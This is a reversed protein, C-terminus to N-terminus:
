GAGLKIAQVMELVPTPYVGPWVLLVLLAALVIGGTLSRAPATVSKKL